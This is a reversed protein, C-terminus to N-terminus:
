RDEILRGVNGAFAARASTLFRSVKVFDKVGPAEEVGSSVDVGYPRVRAIAEAVNEPTLGGALIVRAKAAVDAARGWDVQRGTGGRRVPDVADLLWTTDAPWVQYAREFGDLGVARLVPVGLAVADSPTEDGHLQVASLGVQAAVRRIVEPPEDVFVGVTTM